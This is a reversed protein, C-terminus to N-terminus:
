HSENEKIMPIPENPYIDAWHGQKVLRGDKDIVIVWDYYVEDWRNMLRKTKGTVENTLDIIAYHDKITEYYEMANSKFWFSRFKGSIMNCGDVTWIKRSDTPDLIHWICGPMCILGITCIFMIKIFTKM